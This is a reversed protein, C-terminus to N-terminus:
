DIMNPYKLKKRGTTGFKFPSFLRHDALCIDDQYWVCTINKHLLNQVKGPRVPLVDGLTSDQNKTRIEPGFRCEMTPYKNCNEYQRIYWRCRYVGYNSMDAPESQYKDM